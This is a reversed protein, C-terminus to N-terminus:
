EGFLEMEAKKYATRADEKDKFRGVTKIEGDEIIQARWICNSKDFHLGKDPNKKYRGRRLISVEAIRPTIKLNEICCNLPNGDLFIIEGKYSGHHMMYVVKSKSYEKGGIMVVPFNYKKITAISQKLTSDVLRIKWYLEGEKYKLLNNLQKERLM